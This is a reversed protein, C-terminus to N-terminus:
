PAWGTAISAAAGLLGAAAVLTLPRPMRKSAFAGFTFAATSLFGPSGGSFLGILAAALVAALALRKSILIWNQVPAKAAVLLASEGDRAAAAVGRWRLMIAPINFAALGMAAGWFFPHTFGGRVGFLGASVACAAALPRLSGWFFADAPASLTASSSAKLRQGRAAAGAEGAAARVEQFAAIALPLGAVYPQCNFVELQRTRAQRLGDADGVYVDRLARDLTWAAGLAQRRRNSFGAQLLFSRWFIGRSAAPTLSM